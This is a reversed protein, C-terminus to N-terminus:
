QRTRYPWLCTRRDHTRQSPAAGAAGALEAALITAERQPSLFYTPVSVVLDSIGVGPYGAEFDAKLKRLVLASLDSASYEQKGLTFNEGTGM